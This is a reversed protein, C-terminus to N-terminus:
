EGDALTRRRWKQYSKGVPARGASPRETEGTLYARAAEGAPDIEDRVMRCASIALRHAAVGM